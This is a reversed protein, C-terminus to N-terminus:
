RMYDITGYEEIDVAYIGSEDVYTEGGHRKLFDFDKDPRLGLADIWYNFSENLYKEDKSDSRISFSLVDNESLIFYMDGQTTKVTVGINDNTDAYKMDEKIEEIQPKLDYGNEKEFAEVLSLIQNEPANKDKGCGGIVVLCMILAAVNWVRKMVM